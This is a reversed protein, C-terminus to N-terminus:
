FVIESMLPIFSVRSLLNALSRPIVIGRLNFLGLYSNKIVFGFMEHVGKKFGKLISECDGTNDPRHALNM